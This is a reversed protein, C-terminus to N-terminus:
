FPATHPIPISEIEKFPSDNAVSPGLENNADAARGRERCEKGERERERGGDRGGEREGVAQSM